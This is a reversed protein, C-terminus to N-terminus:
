RFFVTKGALALAVPKSSRQVFADVLPHAQLYMRIVPIGYFAAADARQVVANVALESGTFFHSLSHVGAEDTGQM